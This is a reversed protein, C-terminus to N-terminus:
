RGAFTISIVSRAESGPEPHHGDSVGQLKKGLIADSFSVLHVM